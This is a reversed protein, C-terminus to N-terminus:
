TGTIVTLMREAVQYFARRISLGLVTAVLAAIGTALGMLVVYETMTQGRRDRAVRRLADLRNCM